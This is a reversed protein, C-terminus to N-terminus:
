KNKMRATLRRIKKRMLACLRQLYEADYKRVREHCKLWEVREAGIKLVLRREYEAINGSKFLNCQECGKHINWTNFRLASNSGVSKFHSATWMGDYHSPMHCSICGDDKDRLRVYENVLKEARKLWVKVPQALEKKRKDEARAAKAKAEKQKALRELALVAGCDPSCWDKFPQSPDPMYPGRCAANKCKKPKIKKPKAAPALELRTVDRSEIRVARAFATRKMPKNGPKLRTHRQM